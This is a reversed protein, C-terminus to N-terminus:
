KIAQAPRLASAYSCRIFYRKTHLKQKKHKNIKLDFSSIRGEAPFGIQIVETKKANTTKFFVGPAVINCWM